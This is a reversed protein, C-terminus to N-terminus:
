RNRGDERHKDAAHADRESLALAALGNVLAAAIPSGGRESLNTFHTLDSKSLEIKSELAGVFGVPVGVVLAPRAVGRRALEMLEFLATPANGVAVVAGDLLSGARRFAAASRTIGAEAALDTTEPDDLLCRCESGLEALAAARIGARVMSVDVIIPKGARLAAVGAAISGPSFVITKGFEVDGTTHAVRVVLEMQADPASFSGLRERIIRFSEATIADGARFAAHRETM